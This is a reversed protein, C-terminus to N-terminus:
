NPYNKGRQLEMHPPGFDMESLWFLCLPVVAHCAAFTGMVQNLPKASTFGNDLLNQSVKDPTPSVRGALTDILAGLHIM